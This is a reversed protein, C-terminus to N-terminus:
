CVRFDNDKSLEGTTSADFLLKPVPISADGQQQCLKGTLIFLVM